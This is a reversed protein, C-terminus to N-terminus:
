LWLNQNTFRDSEGRGRWANFDKTKMKMDFKIKRCNKVKADFRWTCVLIGMLIGNM